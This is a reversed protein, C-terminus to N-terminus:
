EVAHADYLYKAQHLVSIQGTLLRYLFSVFTPEAYSEFAAVSGGAAYTISSLLEDSAIVPKAALLEHISANWASKNKMDRYFSCRLVTGGNGAYQWYESGTANHSVLINVLGSDLIMSPHGGNIVARFKHFPIQGLIWVDDELLVLWDCNATADLIRAIYAHASKYTSFFMSDNRDSTRHPSYWFKANYHEAIGHLLAPEGGDNVMIIESFPYVQRFNRLVEEVARPQKYCQYFATIRNTQKHDFYSDAQRAFIRSNLYCYVSLPTLFGLLFSIRLDIHM